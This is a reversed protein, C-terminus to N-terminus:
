GTIVMNSDITYFYTQPFQKSVPSKLVYKVHVAKM